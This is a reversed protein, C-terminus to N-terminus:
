GQALRGAASALGGAPAVPMLDATIQLASDQESTIELNPKSFVAYGPKTITITYTGASPLAFFKGQANTVRTMVLRNTKTEYLRVVALDLPVHTIADRVLGYAPRIRVELIVKVVVLIVYLVEITLYVVGPSRFVLFTNLLAGIVFLPWSLFRGIRQFNQWLHLVRVRAGSVARGNAKMPVIIKVPRRATPVTLVGGTYLVAGDPLPLRTSAPAFNFGESRVDLTYRGTPLLTPFEGQDNTRESRKLKGDEGYILVQAGVIAEGTQYHVVKGGTGSSGGGPVFFRRQSLQHSIRTALSTSTSLVSAAFLVVDLWFWFGSATSGASQETPTTTAQGQDVQVPLTSSEPLEKVAVTVTDTGSAGRPDRVTLLFIYTSGSEGASFSPTATRASLLDVRPGSLQRWTYVLSDRDSDFSATGDLIVLASPNVVQNQGGDATPAHNDALTTPPTPLPTPTESAGPIALPPNTGPVFTGTPVPEASTAPTPTAVGATAEPSPQPTATVITSDAAKGQVSAAGAGNGFEDTAVLKFTYTKGASLGTITTTTAEFDGMDEDDESDWVESTQDIVSKANTGFYIKYSPSSSDTPRTWSLAAETSSISNLTLAFNRPAQLDVRFKNSVIADGTSTDDQPIVRLQVTGIDGSLPGGTNEVSKTDWTFTLTVEQSDNTDIPNSTGVQYGNSNKLDVKGVSPTVKTLWPKYWRVGDTSYQIRLRTPDSDGDSLRTVFTVRGSGDTAQAMDRPKIAVPKARLREYWWVTGRTSDVTAFDFDGDDDIDSIAVGYVQPLNTAVTHEITFEGGTNEYWYVTGDDQAAVLIDEDGDEDLDRVALTKADVSEAIDIREWVSNDKNKYWSVLNETGDGTAVDMKGDHDIDVAALFTRNGNDDDIDIRSWTAGDTTSWRQLGAGGGIVVDNYGDGNMDAITLTTVKSNSDLTTATFTGGSNMWRQLLVNEGSKIATVIDNMGDGNLDGAYALANSGTGISNVHFELDGRNDYWLVSPNGERLTVLLDQNGDRNLDIAQVREGKKDDILNPEFHEGGDNVYIKTGDAGTTVIDIDGDNDMDVTIVGQVGEVARVASVAHPTFELAGVSLPRSFFRWGGFVVLGILTWPLLARLTAALWAMPMTVLRLRLRSSPM